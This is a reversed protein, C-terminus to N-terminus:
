NIIGIIIIGMGGHWMCKRIESWETIKGHPELLLMGQYGLDAFVLGVLIIIINNASYLINSIILSGLIINSNYNYISILYLLIQYIYTFSFNKFFIYTFAIQIQLRDLCYLNNTYKQLYLGNKADIERNSHYLSSVIAISIVGLTENDSLALCKNYCVVLPLLIFISSINFLLGM